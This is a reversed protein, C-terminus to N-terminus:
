KEDSVRKHPIMRREIPFIFIWNTRIQYSQLRALKFGIVGSYFLYMCPQIFIFNHHVNPLLLFPYFFMTDCMLCVFQLIFGFACLSTFHFRTTNIMILTSHLHHAPMISSVTSIYSTSKTQKTYWKKLIFERRKRKINSNQGEVNRKRKEARTKTNRLEPNVTIVCFSHLFLACSHVPMLTSPNHHKFSHIPLSYVGYFFVYVFPSYILFNRFFCAFATSLM